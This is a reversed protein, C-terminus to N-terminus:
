DLIRVPLQIRLTTFAGPKSRLWIKGNLAQVIRVAEQLAPLSGIGAPPEEMEGFLARQDM